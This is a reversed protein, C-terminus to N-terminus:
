IGIKRFKVLPKGLICVDRFSRIFIDLMNENKYNDNM